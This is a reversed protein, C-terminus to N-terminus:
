LLVVSGEVHLGEAVESVMRVEEWNEELQFDGSEGNM